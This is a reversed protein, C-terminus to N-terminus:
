VFFGERCSEDRQAPLKAVKKGYNEAADRCGQFSPGAFFWAAEIPGNGGVVVPFPNCFGHSGLYFRAQCLWRTCEYGQVHASTTRKNELLLNAVFSARM